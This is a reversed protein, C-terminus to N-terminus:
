CVKKAMHMLHQAVRSAGQGDVARRAAQSLEFRLQPTNLMDQLKRHLRQRDPPTSFGLDIVAGLASLSASSEAEWPEACVVLTPIGICCLEYMTIGGASIALDMRIMLSSLNTINELLHVEGICQDATDRLEPLNTFCPGVLAFIRCNPTIQQLTTDIMKLLSPMFGRTDAGGQTLLLNACQMSRQARQIRANNFETGLPLFAPGHLSNPIKYLPNIRFDATKAGNGVDDITIVLRNRKKLRRIIHPATQQRSLIIIKAKRREVIEIADTLSSVHVASFGNQRMLNLVSRRGLVVIDIKEGAKKLSQAVPIIAYM